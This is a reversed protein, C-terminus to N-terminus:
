RRHQRSKNWPRIKGEKIPTNTGHILIEMEM